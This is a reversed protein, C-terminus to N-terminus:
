LSFAGSVTYLDHMSQADITCQSKEYEKLLAGFDVSADQYINNSLNACSKSASFQPLHGERNVPPCPNTQGTSM